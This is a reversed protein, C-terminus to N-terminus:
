ADRGMLRNWAARARAGMPEAEFMSLGRPVVPPPAHPSFDGALIRQEAYRYLSQWEADSAEHRIVREIM